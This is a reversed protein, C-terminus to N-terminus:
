NIYITCASSCTEKITVSSLNLSSNKVLQETLWHAIVECTPNELGPIDNLYRHDLIDHLPAFADSIEQYDVLWGLKKDIAGKVRIVVRFSHGHLNSCKHGDPLNPLRHAAEFRFEKEIETSYNM